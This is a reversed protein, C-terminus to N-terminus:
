AQKAALFASCNKSLKEPLKDKYHKSGIIFPINICVFGNGNSITSGLNLYIFVVFSFIDLVMHVGAIHLVDKNTPSNENQLDM